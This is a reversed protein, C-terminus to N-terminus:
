FAWGGAKFIAAFRMQLVLQALVIAAFVGHAILRGRGRIMLLPVCLVPFLPLDYRVASRWFSQNHSFVLIALVTVGILPQKKLCAWVGIAIFAAFYLAPLLHFQLYSMWDTGPPNMLGAFTHKVGDLINGEPMLFLKQAHLFYLPEGGLVFNLALWGALSLLVALATWRKLVLWAALAYGTLRLWPACLLLAAETLYAARTSRPFGLAVCLLLWMWLAFVTDSYAAFVFYAAPASLSFVFVAIGPVRWLFAMLEAALVAFAFYALVNVALAAAHFSLGTLTSISGILAPYGPPFVLTRPDAKPYGEQWIRAYWHADWKIWADAWAAFGEDMIGTALALATLWGVYTLLYFFLRRKNFPM